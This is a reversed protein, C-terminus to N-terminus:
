VILGAIMFFRTFGTEVQNTYVRDSIWQAGLKAALWQGAADGDDRGYLRARCCVAFTRRAIRKTRRTSTREPSHERGSAPCYWRRDDVRRRRDATWEARSFVVPRNVGRFGSKTR